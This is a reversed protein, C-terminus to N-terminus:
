LSQFLTLRIFETSHGSTVVLLKKYCGVLCTGNQTNLYFFSQEKQKEKMEMVGELLSQVSNIKLIQQPYM